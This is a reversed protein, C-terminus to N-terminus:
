LLWFMIMDENEKIHEYLMGLYDDYETGDLGLLYDYNINNFRVINCLTVSDFDVDQNSYTVTKFLEPYNTELIAGLHSKLM